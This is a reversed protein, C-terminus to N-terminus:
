VNTYTGNSRMVRSRYEWFPKMEDENDWALLYEPTIEPICRKLQKRIEGVSSSIVRM